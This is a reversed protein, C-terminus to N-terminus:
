KKKALVSSVGVAVLILLVFGFWKTNAWDSIMSSNIAWNFVHASSLVFFVLLLGLVVWGFFGKKVFDIEFWKKNTFGVLLLIMFICVIFVSFWAMSFNVFEVLSSRLIFFSALIFSILLSILESGDLIKTKKILAYVLIFVLLFSLIPLFWVLGGIQAVM